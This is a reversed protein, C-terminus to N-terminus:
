GMQDDGPRPTAIQGSYLFSTKNPRVREQEAVHAAAICTGFVM